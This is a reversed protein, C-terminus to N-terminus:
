KHEIRYKMFKMNQSSEKLANFCIYCDGTSVFQAVCITSILEGDQFTDLYISSKFKKKETIVTASTNM